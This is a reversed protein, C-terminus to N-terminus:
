GPSRIWTPRPTRLREVYDRCPGIPTWTDATGHFFRIPGARVDAAGPPWELEGSVVHKKGETGGRTFTETSITLAPIKIEEAGACSPSLISALAVVPGFRMLSTM